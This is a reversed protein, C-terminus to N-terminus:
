TIVGRKVLKNNNRKQLQFTPYKFISKEHNSKNKFFKPLSEVLTTRHSHSDNAIWTHFLTRERAHECYSRQEDLDTFGFGEIPYFYVSLIVM